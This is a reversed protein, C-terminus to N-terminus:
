HLPMFDTLHFEGNPVSFTTYLVSSRGDFRRTVFNKGEANIDWYGGKEEDILSSFVAPQDFAGPCYWSITGDRDPLACTHRDSIVALSVIDPQRM